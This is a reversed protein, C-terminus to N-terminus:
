VEELSFIPTLDQSSKLKLQGAPQCRFPLSVNLLAQERRIEAEVDNTMLIQNQDAKSMVYSARNVPNGLTNYSRRSMSHGIEGAVVTGTSLGIQCSINVLSDGIEIPPFETILALIKCATTAARIADDSRTSPVGFYILIDSYAHYTWDQLFGDQTEALGNVQAFLQALTKVIKAENEPTLEQDIAESLGLVNIFLVTASAMMPPINKHYTNEVILKLASPPMFSIYRKNEQLLRSIEEIVEGSKQYLFSINKASRRKRLTIDFEGLTHSDFDDRVLSYGPQHPDFDFMEKVSEAANDTVCVRGVRGAGETQKAQRITKGLLIHVMRMPTGVNAVMFRGYDIGIRMAIQREGTLTQVNTFNKMMRQLRLGTRIAKAIALKPNSGPFEVLLADGTFEVLDGGSANLIDITQVFYNNLLDSLFRAGATGYNGHSETLSTFGALDTFMLASQQWHWSLEGPEPLADILGYPLYRNLLYQFDYLHQMAATLNHETPDIWLSAYLKAPLQHRLYPEYQILAEPLSMDLFVSQPFKGL